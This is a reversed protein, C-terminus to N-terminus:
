NQSKIFHFFELKNSFRQSPRYWVAHVSQMPSMVPAMSTTVQKLLWTLIPDLKCSKAPVTKLWDNEEASQYRHELATKPTEVNM